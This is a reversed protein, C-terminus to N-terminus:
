THLTCVRISKVDIGESLAGSGKEFSKGGAAARALLAQLSGGTKLYSAYGQSSYVGRHSTTVLHGKCTAKGAKYAPRESRM